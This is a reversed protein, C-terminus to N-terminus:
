DQMLSTAKCLTALPPMLHIAVEQWLLNVADCQELCQCSTRMGRGGGCPTNYGPVLECAPLLPAACPSGREGAPYPPCDCRGLELNCTGSGSCGALCAGQHGAWGDKVSDHLHTPTTLAAKAVAKVNMPANRQAPRRSILSGRRAAQLPIAINPLTALLLAYVLLFESM